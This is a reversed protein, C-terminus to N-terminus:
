RQLTEVSLLQKVFQCWMVHLYVNVAFFFRFFHLWVSASWFAFPIEWRIWSSQDFVDDGWLTENHQLKSQRIFWTALPKVFEIHLDILMQVLKQNSIHVGKPTVKLHHVSKFHFKICLTYASDSTFFKRNLRGCHHTLQTLQYRCTSHIWRINFYNM